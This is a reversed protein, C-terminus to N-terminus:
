TRRLCDNRDRRYTITGLEVPDYLGRFDEKRSVTRIAAFAHIRVGPYAEEIRWACGMLTHGRTVIDDVLVVEGVDSLVPRVKLSKYHETPTPRARPSSRSSPLVRKVRELLTSVRGLGLSQMSRAIELSPWLGGRRIPSSRPVPVLIAEGHFVGRLSERGELLSALLRAVMDPLFVGRGLPLNNKLRKVLEAALKGEGPSTKLAPCYTLLSSYNLRDLGM